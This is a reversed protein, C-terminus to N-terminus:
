KPCNPYIACRDWQQGGIAEGPEPILGQSSSTHRIWREIESWLEADLMSCSGLVHKIFSYFDESSVLLNIFRIGKVISGAKKQRPLAGGARSTPGIHISLSLIMILSYLSLQSELFRPPMSVRSFILHLFVFRGHKRKTAKCALEWRNTHVSQSCLQPSQKIPEM